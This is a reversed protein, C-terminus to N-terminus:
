VLKFFLSLQPEAIARRLKMHLKKGPNVAARDTGYVAGRLRREFHVRREAFNLIM